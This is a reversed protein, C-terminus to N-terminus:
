TKESMRFVPFKKLFTRIKKKKDDVKLEQAGLFNPSLIKLLVYLGAPIDAAHRINNDKSAGTDKINNRITEKRHALFERAEQPHTQFWIEIHKRLLEYDPEGAENEATKYFLNLDANGTRLGELAFDIDGQIEQEILNDTTLKNMPEILHPVFGCRM